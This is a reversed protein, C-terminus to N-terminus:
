RADGPMCVGDVCSPSIGSCDADVCCGVLRIRGDVCPYADCAADSACAGGQCSRCREVTLDESGDALTTCRQLGATPCERRLECTGETCAVADTLCIPGSMCPGDIGPCVQAAVEDVTERLAEGSDEHIAVPCSRITSGDPCSIDRQGLTCDLSSSCTNPDSWAMVFERSALREAESCSLDAGNGGTGCATACALISALGLATAARGRDVM